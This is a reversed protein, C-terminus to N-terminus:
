HHIKGNPMTAGALSNATELKDLQDADITAGSLDASSLVAGDLKAGTLTAAGLHAGILITNRMDANTLDANVLSINQLTLGHLDVNELNAGSLSIVPAPAQILRSNYLFQVVITKRAGDSDLDRLVNLTDAQAVEGVDYPVTPNPTPSINVSPTVTLCAVSASSTPSATGPLMPSPTVTLCPFTASPMATPLGLNEKFILDAMRDIYNELETEHLRDDSLAKDNGSSIKNYLFGVTPILLTIVAFRLWDSLDKNKIIKKLFDAIKKRSFRSEKKTPHKSAPTPPEGDVNEPLLNETPM